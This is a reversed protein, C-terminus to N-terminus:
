SPLEPAILLKQVDHLENQVTELNEILHFIKILVAGLVFTTACPFLSGLQGTFDCFNGRRHLHPDTFIRRFRHRLAYNLGKIRATGKFNRAHADNASNSKSASRRSKGFANQTTRTITGVGVRLFRYDCISCRIGGFQRRWCALCYTFYSWRRFESGNFFLSDQFADKWKLSKRRWFVCWFRGIFNEDPPKPQQHRKRIKAAM